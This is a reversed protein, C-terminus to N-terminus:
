RAPGAPHLTCGSRPAAAPPHRWPRHLLVGKCTAAYGAAQNRRILGAADHSAALM